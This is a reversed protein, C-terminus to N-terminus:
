RAGGASLRALWGSRPRNRRPMHWVEWALLLALAVGFPWTLHRYIKTPVKGEAILQQVDITAVLDAADDPTTRHAYHIGLTSALSQLNAEDIRSIAPQNTAPDTIWVGPTIPNLGDNLTMPGGTTTGYGLVYGGDIMGALQSYVGIGTTTGRVEGDTMFFVIRINQPNVEMSRQLATQLQEFPLALNSGHSTYTNEQQVTDSWSVVARGDTTLPLQRMAVSDWAIISFRSGSLQAVIARLDAKVGDLRPESGNYDYAAMSGTKDVVFFVDVNTTKNPQDEAEVAPTAAITAVVLVMLLRRIWSTRRVPRRVAMVICVAALGGFLVLVLLPHFLWILRM